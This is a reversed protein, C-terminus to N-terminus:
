SRVRQAHILLDPLLIRFELEHPFISRVVERSRFLVLRREQSATSHRVPNSGRLNRTAHSVVMLGVIVVFHADAVVCAGTANAYPYLKAFVPGTVLHRIRRYGAPSSTSLKGWPRLERNLLVDIAVSHLTLVGHPEAAFVAPVKAVVIKVVV